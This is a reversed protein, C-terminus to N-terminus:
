GLKESKMGIRSVLWAQLKGEEPTKTRGKHRLQNREMEEATEPLRRVERTELMPTAGPYYRPGEELTM